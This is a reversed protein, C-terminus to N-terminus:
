VSPHPFGQGETSRVPFLFSVRSSCDLAVNITMIYLYLLVASFLPM